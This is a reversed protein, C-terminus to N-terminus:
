FSVYLENKFATRYTVMNVFIDTDWIEYDIHEELKRM